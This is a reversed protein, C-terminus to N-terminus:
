PSYTEGFVLTHGCGLGSRYIADEDSDVTVVDWTWADRSDQLSRSGECLRWVEDGTKYALPASSDM